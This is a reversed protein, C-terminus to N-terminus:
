EIVGAPYLDGKPLVPKETEANSEDVLKRDGPDLRILGVSTAAYLTTQGINELWFPRGGTEESYFEINQFHPFYRLDIGSSYARILFSDQFTGVHAGVSYEIPTAVEADKPVYFLSHFYYECFDALVLLVNGPDISPMKEKGEYQKRLEEFDPLLKTCDEMRGFLCSTLPCHYESNRTTLIIENGEKRVGCVESTHIFTSDSLRPHGTVIGWAIMYDRGTHSTHMSFYWSHLMMQKRDSALNEVYSDMVAVAKDKLSEGNLFTPDIAIEVNRGRWSFQLKTMVVYDLVIGDINNKESHVELKQKLMSEM